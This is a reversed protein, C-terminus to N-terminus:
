YLVVMTVLAQGTDFRVLLVLVLASPFRALTIFDSSHTRHPGVQRMVFRKSLLEQYLPRLPRWVGSRTPGSLWLLLIVPRSMLLHSAEVVWKSMRQKSAPSGKNPPGFCVFLQENKRWLAARHVYADLARMRFLLLVPQISKVHAELCIVCLTEWLTLISAVSNGQFPVQM